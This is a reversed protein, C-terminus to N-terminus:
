VFQPSRSEGQCGCIIQSRSYIKGNTLSQYTREHKIRSAIIKDSLHFLMNNGQKEMFLIEEANVFHIDTGSKVQLKKSTTLGIQLGENQTAMEQAKLCSQLFREYTIPKLLYDTVSLDFGQVAYESYATTLIVQCRKGIM